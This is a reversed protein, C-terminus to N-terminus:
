HKETKKVVLWTTVCTRRSSGSRVTGTHTHTHTVLVAASRLVLRTRHARAKQIGTADLQKFTNGTPLDHDSKFGNSQTLPHCVSRCTSDLRGQKQFYLKMPACGSKNSSNHTAAKTRFRCLETITPCLIRGM